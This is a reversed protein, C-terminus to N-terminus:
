RSGGKALTGGEPVHECMHGWSHSGSRGLRALAWVFSGLGWPKRGHSKETDVREAGQCRQVASSSSPSQSIVVAVHIAAVTVSVDREALENRRM